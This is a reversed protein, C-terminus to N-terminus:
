VGKQLRAWTIPGVIGDVDIKQKRQFDLVAAQTLPGWCGDVALRYGFVNLMTQLTKVASSKSSCTGMRITPYYVKVDEEKNNYVGNWINTLLTNIENAVRCINQVYTPSTAYGGKWIATICEEVTTAQLSAAYRKGEILSFYDNCAASFSDYSRFAATITTYTGNYVEGTKASYAKRKPDAKLWSSTAKIGFPAFNDCMLKSKGYGTELCAQSVCVLFSPFGYGKSKCITKAANAITEIFQQKTM